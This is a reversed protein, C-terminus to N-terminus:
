GNKARLMKNIDLVGIGGGKAMFSGDSEWQVMPPYAILPNGHKDKKIGGNGDPEFRTSVRGVYDFMGAIMRGVEKGTLAPGGVYRDGWRMHTDEHTSCVVVKGEGARNGLAKFIRKMVNNVVGHGEQTMKTKSMLVKKTKGDRESYAQTTVEDQLTIGMLFLVGDLFISNFKECADPSSLFQIIEDATVSEDYPLVSIDKGTLELKTIIRKNDGRGECPVFLTPRPISALTSYTKGVWPEGYELIFAGATKMEEPSLLKIM